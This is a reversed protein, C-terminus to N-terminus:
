RVTIRKKKKSQFVQGIGLSAFTAFSRTPVLEQARGCRSASAAEGTKAMQQLRFVNLETEQIQRKLKETYQVTEETEARTRFAGFAEISV